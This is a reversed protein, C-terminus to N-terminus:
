RRRFPAIKPFDGAVLEPAAESADPAVGVTRLDEERYSNGVGNDWKVYYPRPAAGPKYPRDGAYVVTGTTGGGQGEPVFGPAGGYTRIAHPTLQVRDGPQFALDM